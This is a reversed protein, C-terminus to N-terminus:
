SNEPNKKIPSPNQDWAHHQMKHHMIQDSMLPYFLLGMVKEGSQNEKVKREGAGVNDGHFGLLAQIDLVGM